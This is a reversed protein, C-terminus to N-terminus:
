SGWHPRDGRFRPNEDRAGDEPYAEQLVKVASTDSGLIALILAAQVRIKEDSDKLLERVIGLAQENGEEM